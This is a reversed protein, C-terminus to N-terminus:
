GRRGCFFATVKGFGAVATPHLRENPQVYKKAYWRLFRKARPTLRPGFVVIRDEGSVPALVPFLAHRAHKSLFLVRNTSAVREIWGCLEHMAQSSLLAPHAQISNADAEAGYSLKDAQVINRVIWARRGEVFGYCHQDPANWVPEDLVSRVEVQRLWFGGTTPRVELNLHEALVATAFGEGDLVWAERLAHLQLGQILFERLVRSRTDIWWTSAVVIAGILGGAVGGLLVALSVNAAAQLTLSLAEAM